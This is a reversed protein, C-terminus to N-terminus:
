RLRRREQPLLGGWIGFAQDTEIAFALCESRVDCAACIARARRVEPSTTAAKGISSTTFMLAHARQSQYCLGFPRWSTDADIVRVERFKMGAGM